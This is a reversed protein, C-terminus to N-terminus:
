KGLLLFPFLWWGRCGNSPIKAQGDRCPLADMEEPCYIEKDFGGVLSHRNHFSFTRTMAHDDTKGVTNLGGGGAVCIRNKIIIAGTFGWETTNM